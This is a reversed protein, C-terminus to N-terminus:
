ARAMWEGSAFVVVIVSGVRCRPPLGTTGHVRKRTGHRVADEFNELSTGWKLNEPANNFRNGDLHRVEMGEPKPGHFARCITAHVNYRKCGRGPQNARWQLYDGKVISRMRMPRLTGSKTSYVVGDSGALYGPENEIDVYTVM